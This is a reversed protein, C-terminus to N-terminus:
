VEVIVFGVRVYTGSHSVARCGRGTGNGPHAALHTLGDVESSVSQEDALQYIGTDVVVVLASGCHRVRPHPVSPHFSAAM